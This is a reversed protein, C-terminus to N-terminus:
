ASRHSLVSAGQQEKAQLVLEPITEAIGVLKVQKSRAMGTLYAGEHAHILGIVAVKLQQAMAPLAAISLVAALLPKMM